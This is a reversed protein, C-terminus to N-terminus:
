AALNLKFGVPLAWLWSSCVHEPQNRLCASIAFPFPGYMERTVGWGLNGLELSRFSTKDTRKSILIIKLSVQSSAEGLSCMCTKRNPVKVKRNKHQDGDIFQTQGSVYGPAATSFSTCGLVSWKSPFFKIQLFSQGLLPPYVWTVFEAIRLFPPPSSAQLLRLWKQKSLKASNVVNTSSPPEGM